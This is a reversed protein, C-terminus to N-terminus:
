PVPQDGAMLTVRIVDGADWAPFDFTNGQTAASALPWTAMAQYPASLAPLEFVTEVVSVCQFTKTASVTLPWALAGAKVSLWAVSWGLWVPCIEVPPRRPLESRLRASKKWIAISGVFWRTLM